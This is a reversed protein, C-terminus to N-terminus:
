GEDTLGNEHGLSTEAILMTLIDNTIVISTLGLLAAAALQMRSRIRRPVAEDWM